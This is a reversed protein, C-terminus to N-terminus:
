FSRIKRHELVPFGRRFAELWGMDLDVVLVGPKSFSARKLIRGLPDIIMSNGYSVIGSGPHRGCQGSAVVYCQNEIARARLLVEWATKGTKATFNAPVFIVKAGKASLARFYEPFRLDYCIGVGMGLGNWEFYGSKVGPSVFKSEQVKVQPLHIDFLHMKRYKLIREGQSSFVYCTNATQYKKKRSGKFLEPISGAVIMVSHKKSFAQILSLVQPVADHAIMAMVDDAARAIFNEPLVIVDVCSKLALDCQKQVRQWNKKWDAGADTQICAVRLTSKKKM